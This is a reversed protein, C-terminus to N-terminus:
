GIAHKIYELGANFDTILKIERKKLEDEVTPDAFDKADSDILVKAGQHETAHALVSAYILADPPRFRYAGEYERARALVEANLPPVSAIGAIKEIMKELRGRVEEGSAVLASIMQRSDDPLTQFQESRSLQRIERQLTDQLAKRDAARRDWTLRAEALAFIPVVLQIKGDAALECLEDCAHHADQLYAVELVFNTETYLIV